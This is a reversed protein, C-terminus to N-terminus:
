LDWTYVLSLVSRYEDGTLPPQYSMFTLPLRDPDHGRVLQVRGDEGHQQRDQFASMSKLQGEVRDLEANSGVFFSCARLGLTQQGSRVGNRNAQRLALAPAGTTMEAGLLASDADRVIEQVGCVSTYFQVSRDLDSVIILVARLWWGDDKTMDGGERALM